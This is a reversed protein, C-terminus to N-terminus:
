RNESLVTCIHLDIVTALRSTYILIFRTWLASNRVTSPIIEVLCVKFKPEWKGNEKTWGYLLFYRRSCSLLHHIFCFTQVDDCVFLKSHLVHFLCINEFVQAPCTALVFCVNRSRLPLLTRTPFLWLVQQGSWGCWRWGSGAEHRVSIEVLVVWCM